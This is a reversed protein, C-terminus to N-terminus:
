DLVSFEYRVRNLYTEGPRLTRQPFHSQHVSDPFTQMEVTLGAFAGYADLDGKASFGELYGGVYIQVGPQDTVLTLRRGSDPDSLSGVKRMQTGALVWNHDYGPNQSTKRGAGANVVRNINQGVPTPTRFDFPTGTVDLIEGTPILEPDVPTYFGGEVQLLQNLITGSDHGAMNFYAHNVINTVTAQDTVSEITIELAPGDLRYTVTTDLNGPYGEEGDPSRRSFIVRDQEPDVSSDWFHSDFGQRGGHVHNAGENTTVAFTEGDIELHGRRIRNAYRGATVGFYCPDGILEDYSHRGLVVDALRGARDPVHLELIRAGIDTLVVRCSENEITVITLRLDGPTTIISSGIM